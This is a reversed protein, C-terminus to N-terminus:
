GGGGEFVMETGDRWRGVGGRRVNTKREGFRGGSSGEFRWRSVYMIAIRFRVSSEESQLWCM